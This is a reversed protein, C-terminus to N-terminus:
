RPCLLVCIALAIFKPKAQASGYAHSSAYSIEGAPLRVQRETDATCAALLSHVRRILASGAPLVAIGTVVLEGAGPAASPATEARTPPPAPAAPTNAAALSSLM